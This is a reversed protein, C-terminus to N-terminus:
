LEDPEVGEALPSWFPIRGRASTPRPDPAAFERGAWDLLNAGCYIVDTQHISLV